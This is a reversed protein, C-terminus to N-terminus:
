LRCLGKEFVYGNPSSHELNVKEFPCKKSYNTAFHGKLTRAFTLVKFTRIGFCLLALDLINTHIHKHGEVMKLFIVLDM